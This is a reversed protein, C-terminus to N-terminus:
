FSIRSSRLRAILTNIQPITTSMLPTTCPGQGLSIKSNAPHSRPIESLVLLRGQWLGVMGEETLSVGNESEYILCEDRKDQTWLKAGVLAPVCGLAGRPCGYRERWTTRLEPKCEAGLVDFLESPPSPNGKLSDVMALVCSAEKNKRAQQM